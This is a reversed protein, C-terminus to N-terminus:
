IVFSSIGVEILGDFINFVSCGRMVGWGESSVLLDSWGLM